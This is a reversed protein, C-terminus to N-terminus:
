NVALGTASSPIILSGGQRLHYSKISDRAADIMSLALNEEQISGAVSMAGSKYIIIQLYAVPISDEVEKSSM